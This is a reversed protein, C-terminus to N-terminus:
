EYDGLRHLGCLAQALEKDSGSKIAARVARAATVQEPTVEIESDDEDLTEDALDIDDDDDKSAKAGMPGKKKPGMLGIAIAPM